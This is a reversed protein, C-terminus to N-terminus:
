SSRSWLQPRVQLRDFREKLALSWPEHVEEEGRRQLGRRECRERARDCARDPVREDGRERAADLGHLLVEGREEVGTNHAVRDLEHTSAGPACDMCLERRFAHTHWRNRARRHTRAGAPKLIRPCMVLVVMVVMPMVVRGRLWPADQRM